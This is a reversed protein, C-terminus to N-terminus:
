HGAFETSGLYTLIIRVPKTPYTQALAATPLILLNWPVTRVIASKM